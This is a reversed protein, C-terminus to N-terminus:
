PVNCHKSAKQWKDVNRGTRRNTLIKKISKYFAILDEYM